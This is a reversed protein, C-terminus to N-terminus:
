LRTSKRDVYSGAVTFTGLGDRGVAVTGRNTVSEVQGNGELRTGANVTVASGLVGDVGLTGAAVTTVATYGSNDGTLLLTGTGQKTLAGSGSLLGAYTFTTDAGTAITGNGDLVFNRASTLDSSTALTGASRWLGGAWGCLNADSVIQLTGGYIATGGTYSNVGTLILTGADTKVLQSNGSLESGITATYGAGATSGDGVRITTAADTLTIADGDI